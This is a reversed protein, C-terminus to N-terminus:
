GEFNLPGMKRKESSQIEFRQELLWFKLGYMFEERKVKLRFYHIIIIFRLIYGLHFLDGLVSFYTSFYLLLQCRDKHLM